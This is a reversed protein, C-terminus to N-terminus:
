LALPVELWALLDIIRALDNPNNRERCTELIARKAQPKKKEQLELATPLDIRRAADHILDSALFREIGRFSSGLDPNIEAEPWVLALSTSHEDLLREFELRQDETTEWDLVVVVPSRTPRARLPSQNARLYKRLAEKGSGPMAPDLTELCRVDWPIARGSHRYADTVYEVDTPGEVLLTPRPATLSLPHVFHTVGSALMRDALDNVQLQEAQTVTGELRVETGIEAAAAFLLSHTTLLAQFRPAATEDMLFSALQNELDAHLFSEPEEIAWITAQHWGFGEAFRTDLFHVLLYMLFSQNGSGHLGVDLPRMGAAKMRLALSWVVEAWDTPTALEIGEVHGPSSALARTIPEVLTEAASAMDKLLQDFEAGGPRQRGRSQRSRRRKLTTILSNQLARFEASLLESPHIHNPIYRFRILQLFRIATRTQDATLISLKADEEKALWLEEAILDPRLPDTTWRRLMQFERRERIGIQSLPDRLSRHIHFEDPLRLGVQIEIARDRLPRSSRRLDRRLDLPHGPEPEGNFFLNLGRLINSKGSGNAGIFATLSEADLTLDEISRFNRIIAFDLLQM